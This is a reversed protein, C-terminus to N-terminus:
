RGLDSCFVSDVNEKEGARTGRGLKRERNAGLASLRSDNNGGTVVRRVVVAVFNVKFITRLDDFWVGRSDDRPDISQFAIM